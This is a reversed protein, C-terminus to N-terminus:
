TYCYGVIKRGERIVDIDEVERGPRQNGCTEEPQVRGGHQMNVIIRSGDASWVPSKPQHLGELIMREGTGDINIVWLSGLAGNQPNDWRTFAVWQGDPSIAPDLGTTLYRLNAGDPNIAYISGGSSTQFVLTEPFQSNQISFFADHPKYTANLINSKTDLKRM